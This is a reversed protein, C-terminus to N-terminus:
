AIAKIMDQQTIIHYKDNDYSVLVAKAGGQFLKSIKEIPTTEEVIPFAPQMINKVPLEKLDPNELLKSFLHNDTLSGVFGDDGAVPIQSIGYQNLIIKLCTAQFIKSLGYITLTPM